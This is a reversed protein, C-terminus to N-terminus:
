KKLTGIYLTPNPEEMDETDDMNTHLYYFKEADFSFPRISVKEWTYIDDTYGDKMSAGKKTKTDYCFFLVENGRKDVVYQSFVFRNSKYINLIYILKKGDSDIGNNPFQLKLYPFLQKKELYYLTDRIIAEQGQESFYLHIKNKDQTIFDNYPNTYIGKLPDIVERIKLSDIITLDKNFFFIMPIRPKESEYQESILLIEDNIYNIYKTFHVQNLSVQKIFEGETNYCILKNSDLFYLFNDKNNITIDRLFAYEGPGKGQTGIKRIYKGTKNFLLVGSQSDWVVIHHSGILVRKIRSILSENTIELEIAQINESIESLLVSQDQNIDVPITLLESNNVKNDCSLLLIILALGVFSNKLYKM